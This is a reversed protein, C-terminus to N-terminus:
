PGEGSAKLSPCSLMMVWPDLKEPRLVASSDFVDHSIRLGDWNKSSGNAPRSNLMDLVSACSHLLLCCVLKSQLGHPYMSDPSHMGCYLLDAPSYVRASPWRLPLLAQETLMKHANKPIRAEFLRARAEGCGWQRPWSSPGVRLSALQDHGHTHPSRRGHPLSPDTWFGARGCGVPKTIAVLIRPIHGPSGYRFRILVRLSLRPLDVRCSGVRLRTGVVNDRGKWCLM